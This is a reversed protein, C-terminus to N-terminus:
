STNPFPVILNCLVLTHALVEIMSCVSVAQIGSNSTVPQDYTIARQTKNNNNNKIIPTM